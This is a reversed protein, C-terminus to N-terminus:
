VRLFEKLRAIMHREYKKESNPKIYKNLFVEFDNDESEYVWYNFLRKLEEYNDANFNMFTNSVIDYHTYQGLPDYSITKVGGFLSEFTVSSMPTTVVLNSISLVEYPSLDFENAYFCNSSENIKDLLKEFDEGMMSKLTLSHKKSKFLFYININENALALMGEIFQIYSEFTFVGQYGVTQDFFSIITNNTNLGIKKYIKNKDARAQYILDSFIPGIEVYHSVCNELTKIWDNSIQDSIVTDCIMHTYDHCTSSDKSIIQEVNEETVSFYIFTTNTNNHKHVISSTLNEKVMMSVAYKANFKNYFISWLTFERAARSCNKVLFPYKVILSIMKNRWLSADKYFLKLYDMLNIEKVVEELRLANLGFGEVKEPWLQSTLNGNDIYLTESNNFLSFIRNNKSVEGILGDDIFTLSTYGYKKFNNQNRTKLAIIEPHVIMRAFFYLFKIFNYLRIYVKSLFHIKINNPILGMIEMEKYIRLSFNLPFIYIEEKINYKKKVKDAYNFSEFVNRANEIISTGVFYESYTEDGWKSLFDLDYNNVIRKILEEENYSALHDCYRYDSVSFIDESVSFIKENVSFSNRIYINFNRFCWLLKPTSCFIISKM